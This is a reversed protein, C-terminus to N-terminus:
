RRADMEEGSLRSPRQVSQGLFTTSSMTVLIVHAKLTHFQRIAMTQVRSCIRIKRDGYEDYNHPNEQLRGVTPHSQNAKALSKSIEIRHGGRPTINTLHVKKQVM